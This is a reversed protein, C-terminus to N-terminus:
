NVLSIRGIVLRVSYLITEFGIVSAPISLSCRPGSTKLCVAITLTNSEPLVISSTRVIVPIFVKFFM